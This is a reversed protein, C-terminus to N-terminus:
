LSSMSRLLDNYGPFGTDRVAAAENGAEDSFKCYAHRPLGVYPVLPITLQSAESRHEHVLEM